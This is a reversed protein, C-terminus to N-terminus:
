DDDITVTCGAIKTGLLKGLVVNADDVYVESLGKAAGHMADIYDIPEPIEYGLEKARDKVHWANFSIIPIGTYSSMKVLDSTKGHGRHRIILDM